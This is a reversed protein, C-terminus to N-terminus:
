KSLKESITDIKKVLCARKHTFTDFTFKGHYQGMGSPGVGGFPLSDVTQFLFNSKKSFFLEVFKSVLSICSQTMAVFEERHRTRSLLTVIKRTIVSSTSRWRNIALRFHLKLNIKMGKLKHFWGHTSSSLPM